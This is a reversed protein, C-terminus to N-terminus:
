LLALRFASFLVNEALHIVIPSCVVPHIMQRTQLKLLMQCAWQLFRRRTRRLVALFVPAFLPMEDSGM